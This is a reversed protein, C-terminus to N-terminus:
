INEPVFVARGLVKGARMAHITQNIESLPRCTVPLAPCGQVHVLDMLAQMEQLSGVYSGQLTLSRLVLLPVPYVLEGGFMGVVIASGNKSLHELATRVTQPSGVFDLAAVVGNGITNKLEALGQPDSGFVGLAGLAIAAERKAPDPEVVYAGAAGLKQLLGLCMLGLGGAGIILLPHTTLSQKVKMLASYATLGSCALPAAQVPTLAGLPFLYRTDPVVIHGAFGGPAFVGLFRPSLCLHGEANRCVDCAGCGAWPYIVFREGPQVDTVQDGVSVVEGVTEHGLTHPLRIGREELPIRQGSGLDFYGDSLHLDTHCLGAALTKLVVQRGVAAPVSDSARQLECGCSVLQYRYSGAADPAASANSGIV